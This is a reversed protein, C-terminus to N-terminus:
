ISIRGITISSAMASQNVVNNVNVCIAASLSSM